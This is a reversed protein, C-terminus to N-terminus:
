RLSIVAPGTCHNFNKKFKVIESTREVGGRYLRIRSRAASERLPRASGVARGGRASGSAESATGRGPPGKTRSQARLRTGAGTVKLHLRQTHMPAGLEVSLRRHRSRPAAPARCPDPPRSMHPRTPLADRRSARSGPSLQLCPVLRRLSLLPSECATPNLSSAGSVEQQAALEWRATSM